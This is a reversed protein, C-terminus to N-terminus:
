ATARYNGIRLFEEQRKNINLTSGRSEPSDTRRRGVKISQKQKLIALKSDHLQLLLLLPVALGVLIRIPRSTSIQFSDSHAQVTVM